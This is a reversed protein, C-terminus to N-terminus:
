KKVFQIKGEKGSNLQLEGRYESVYGNTLKVKKKEKVERADDEWFVMKVEGTEDTVYAQIFLSDGYGINGKNTYGIFDITVTIDVNNMGNKLDKVKYETMKIM